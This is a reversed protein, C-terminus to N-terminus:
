TLKANWQRPAHKLDYLSKKLRCVRKDEPSFYGELLTMYITEYRVTVIKVVPSFTEDFNVGKKNFGKAVVRAKYREIEGDSKYTIKFVWKSGISKRDYPLNTIEWTDNDYLAKMEKNMAEIWHQEKYAQWYTNPEFAKNLKTTFCFFNQHLILTGKM